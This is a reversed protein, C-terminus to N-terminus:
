EAAIREIRGVGLTWEAGAALVVLLVSVAGRVGTAREAGAALM